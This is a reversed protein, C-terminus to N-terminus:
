CSGCCTVLQQQVQQLAQLCGPQQLLLQQQQVAQCPYHCRLRCVQHCQQQQQLQTMQWSLHRMLLV